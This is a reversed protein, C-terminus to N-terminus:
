AKSKSGVKLSQAASVSREKVWRERMLAQEISEVCRASIGASNHRLGNLSGVDR